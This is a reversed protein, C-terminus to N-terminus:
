LDWWVQLASVPVSLLITAQLRKIVLLSGKLSM